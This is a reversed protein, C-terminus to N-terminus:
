LVRMVFVCPSPAEARRLEPMRRPHGPRAQPPVAAYEAQVALNKEQPGGYRISRLMRRPLSEGKQKPASAEDPGPTFVLRPYFLFGGQSELAFTGLGRVRGRGQPPTSFDSRLSHNKPPPVATELVM